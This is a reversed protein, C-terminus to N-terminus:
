GWEPKQHDADANTTVDAGQRTLFRVTQLHDSHVRLGSLAPDLGNGLTQDRAAATRKMGRRVDPRACRLYRGSPRKTRRSEGGSLRRM